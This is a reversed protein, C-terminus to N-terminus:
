FGHETRLHELVASMTDEFSSEVLSVSPWKSMLMTLSGNSPSFSPDLVINLVPKNKKVVLTYEWECNLSREYKSTVFCLVVKARQVGDAMGDYITPYRSMVDIDVWTPINQKKLYDAVQIVFPQSDWQYSMMVWDSSPTGSSVAMGEKLRRVVEQIATELGTADNMSIWLKGGMMGELTASPKFTPELIVFLNQIRREHVTKCEGLCGADQNFSNSLLLVANSATELQTERRWSSDDTVLNQPQDLEYVQIGARVLGAHLIEAKSRDSPHFSLVVGGSRRQVPEVIPGFLDVASECNTADAPEVPYLYPESSHLRAEVLEIPYKAPCLKGSRLDEVSLAFIRLETGVCSLDRVLNVLNLVQTLLEGLHLPNIQRPARVIIELSTSEQGLEVLCQAGSTHKIVVGNRWLWVKRGRFNSVCRCQFRPFYGASFMETDQDQVEVRRGVFHMGNVHDWVRPPRELELRSPFTLCKPEEAEVCLELVMLLRIVVGITDEDFEHLKRKNRGSTFLERVQDVHITAKSDLRQVSGVTPPALVNEGAVRQRPGWVVSNRRDACPLEDRRGDDGSLANHCRERSM